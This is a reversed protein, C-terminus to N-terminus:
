RPTGDAARAPEPRTEELETDLQRLRLHAQRDATRGGYTIDDFVGAASRLDATHGPLQRGAEDAAEDATRGPRPDILAREELSRVIARMQEQVAQNWDEAAAHSAAAARHDAATRPTGGFLAAPRATRRAPTGLRWWLAALLCCAALAIVLIGLPGGPAAASAALLLGDAWDLFDAIGRQLPNPDNEHYMPRSLERQAAERAPIRPSEM